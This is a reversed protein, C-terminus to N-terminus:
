GAASMAAPCSGPRSHAPSAAPCALLQHQGLSAHPLRLQPRHLPLYSALAQFIVSSLPENHNIWHGKEQVYSALNCATLSIERSSVCSFYWASWSMLSLNTHILIYYDQTQARFQITIHSITGQLLKLVQLWTLAYTHRDKSLKTKNVIVVEPLLLYIILPCLQLDLEAGTPFHEGISMIEHGDEILHIGTLGAHSFKLYQLSEKFLEVHM